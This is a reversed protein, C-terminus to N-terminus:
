PLILRFPRMNSVKFGLKEYFTRAQANDNDSLLTIRHCGVSKAFDLTQSLLLKGLGKERHDRDIVMDELWAVKEGLATSVTWLLSVMGLLQENQEAVFISGIAKNELIMRLGKKQVSIDPTFEEEQEFLQTLLPALKEIDDMTAQRIKVM